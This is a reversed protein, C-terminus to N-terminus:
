QKGDRVLTALEFFIEAAVIADNRELLRLQVECTRESGHRRECLAASRAHAYADGGHDKGSGLWRNFRHRDIQAAGAGAQAQRALGLVIREPDYEMAAIASLDRHARTCRPHVGKRRPGHPQAYTEEACPEIGHTRKIIEGEPLHDDLGLTTDDMEVTLERRGGREPWHHGLAVFYPAEM